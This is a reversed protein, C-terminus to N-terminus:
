WALAAAHARPDAGASLAGTAPDILIAANSGISWPGQVLLRHGRRVLTARINQPVRNEVLTEGPRM